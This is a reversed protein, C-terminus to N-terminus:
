ARARRRAVWGIAGLGALLFAASTPEPVPTIAVDWSGSGLTTNNGSSIGNPQNWYFVADTKIATNWTTYQGTPYLFSRFRPGNENPAQYALYDWGVLSGAADTFAWFWLAANPDTSSLSYGGGTISWSEPAVSQFNDTTGSSPAIATNFVFSAVLATASVPHGPDGTSFNTLAPGSYTYTAMANAAASTATFATLALCKLAVRTLHHKMTFEWNPSFLTEPM